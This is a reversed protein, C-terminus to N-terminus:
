EHTTNQFVPTIIAQEYYIDPEVSEYGDRWEEAVKCKSLSSTRHRGHFSHLDTLSAPAELKDFALYWLRFGILDEDLDFGTADAVAIGEDFFAQKRAKFKGAYRAMLDGALDLGNAILHPLPGYSLSDANAPMASM